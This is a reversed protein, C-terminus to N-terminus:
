TTHKRRYITVALLTAILFLPLIILSPFEPIISIDLDVAVKHTSHTYTFTLLWSGDTSTITYKTQNGDLYVRISTINAVLSKAVTVKTYGRTGNPGTVTFSLTWDTTNFALRSITSNSEVSFVNQDKYPTVALNVTTNTGWYTANGDWTARVLYNGTASPMWVASYGGDSATDVLTIDNWTEGGTVSYSLLISAGSLGVEDCTLNGNIEVHFGVYSTSSSLSISITSTVDLVTIQVTDTDWNGSADTVNLTITYEGPTNFTHNPNVGTLTQPTVDIFTWTYSAIKIDDTSGSGDFSVLTDEDVTQNPGANAVPPVTDASVHVWMTDTDQKGAFDTVNLTVEFDGVNNFAYQPHLGTLTKLTVDTFVWAYGRIGVDDTSGSGDFTVTMGQIVSQDPGADAVPPEVEEWPSKLPHMNMLPYRDTNTADIVYPTDGIGDGDVDVGAYDDWYNGGSPYDDDWVNHYVYDPREVVLAQESNDVFNNHYITNYASWYIEIGYDNNTVNNRSITNNSSDQRIWIGCHNNTIENGSITNYWASEYLRIGQDNNTINNATINNNSSVSLWIGYHFYKINTKKITVNSRGYLSIGKSNLAGTGQVTYGAGDVVINDREVVIARSGEPVDGVINDTLIYTINDVSSIPATDPDVSGDARIYITETWTWDSKVSQINFAFTLMGIVILVLALTLGSVIKREM